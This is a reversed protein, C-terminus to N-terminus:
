FPREKAKRSRVTEAIQLLVGEKPTLRGAAAKEGLDALIIALEYFQKNYLGEMQAREEQTATIKDIEWQCDEFDYVGAKLPSGDKALISFEGKKDGKLIYCGKYRCGTIGNRYTRYRAM